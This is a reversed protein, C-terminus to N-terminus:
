AEDGIDPQGNVLINDQLEPGIQDTLLDPYVATGYPGPIYIISFSFFAPNWM